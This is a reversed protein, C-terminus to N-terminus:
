RWFTKNYSTAIEVRGWCWKSNKTQNCSNQFVLRRFFTVKLRQCNWLTNSYKQIGSALYSFELNGKILYSTEYNRCGFMGLYFGVNYNQTQTLRKRQKSTRNVLRFFMFLPQSLNWMQLGSSLKRFFFFFFFKM